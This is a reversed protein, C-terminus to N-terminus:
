GNYWQHPQMLVFVCPQSLLLNFSLYPRTSASFFMSTTFSLQFCMINLSSDWIIMPWFLRTYTQLDAWPAYWGSLMDASDHLGLTETIIHPHIVHCPEPVKLIYLLHLIFVTFYISICSLWIHGTIARWKGLSKYRNWSSLADTWRTRITPLYLYSFVIWPMTHGTWIGSMFMKSYQQSLTFFVKCFRPPSNVFGLWSNSAFRSIQIFKENSYICFKYM